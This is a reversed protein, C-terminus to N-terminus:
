VPECISAIRGYVRVYLGFSPRSAAINPAAIHSQYWIECAGTQTENQVPQPVALRGHEVM